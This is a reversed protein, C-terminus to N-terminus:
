FRPSHRYESPVGYSHQLRRYQSRHRQPRDGRRPVGGGVVGGGVVGGGVVRARPLRSHGFIERSYESLHLHSHFWRDTSVYASIDWGGGGLDSVAVRRGTLRCWAAVASTVFVHQQHCHVVDASGVVRFIELGFPNARQGRVYTPNGIVRVDFGLGQVVDRSSRGQSLQEAVSGDYSLRFIQDDEPTAGVGGRPLGEPEITAEGGPDVVVVKTGPALREVEAAFREAWYTKGDGYCM